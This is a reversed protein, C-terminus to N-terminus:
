KIGGCSTYMRYLLNRLYNIIYNELGLRMMLPVYQVWASALKKKDLGLIEREGLGAALKGKTDITDTNM